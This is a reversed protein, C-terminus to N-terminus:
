KRGGPPGQRPRRRWTAGPPNRGPERPPGPPEHAPVGARRALAPWLWPPPPVPRDPGPASRAARVVRRLAALRERCEACRALHRDQAEAAVAQDGEVARAVLDAADIHPM